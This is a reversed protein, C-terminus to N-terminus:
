CFRKWSRPLDTKTSSPSSLRGRTPRTLYRNPNRWLSPGDPSRLTSLTIPLRHNDPLRCTLLLARRTIPPQHHSRDRTSPHNHPLNTTNSPTTTQSATSSSPTSLSSTENPLLSLWQSNRSSPHPPHQPHEFSSDLREKYVPRPLSRLSRRPPHVELSGNARRLPRCGKNMASLRLLPGLM